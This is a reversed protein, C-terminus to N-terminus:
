SRAWVALGAGALVLLAAAIAASREWGHGAPAAAVPPAAIPAGSAYVYRTHNAGAPDPNALYSRYQRVRALTLVTRSVHELLARGSFGAVDARLLDTPTAPRVTLRVRGTAPVVLRHELVAEVRRGGVTGSVLLPATVTLRLARPQSTVLASGTPVPEDRPVLRTLLRWYRLLPPLEADATYTGVSVSTVNVLTVHGNAIEVRLPLSPAAIAPDLTARSGLVREGPDFGAWVIANTRLGPVSTSDGTAVVGTAPAGIIFFYDGQVSVHLRQTATVAFPRGSKDITVRVVTDSAIRHRVNEASATALGLPPTSSLPAYPSPLSAYHAGDAAGPLVLAVTAILLARTLRPPHHDDREYPEQV